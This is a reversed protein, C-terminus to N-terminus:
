SGIVHVGKLKVKGKLKEVLPDLLAVTNKLRNLTLDLAEPGAAVWYDLNHQVLDKSLELYNTTCLLNRIRDLFNYSTIEAM